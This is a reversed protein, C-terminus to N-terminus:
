ASITKPQALFLHAIKKNLLLNRKRALIKHKKPLPTNIIEFEGELIRVPEGREQSFVWVGDFHKYKEPSPVTEYECGVKLGFQELYNSVIQLTYELKHTCQKEKATIYKNIGFRQGTHGCHKCTYTDFLRGCAGKITVLNTKEFEHHGNIPYEM